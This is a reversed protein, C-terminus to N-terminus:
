PDVYSALTVLTGQGIAYGIILGEFSQTSSSLASGVLGGVLVGAVSTMAMAPVNPREGILRAGLYAGAVSGIASGLAAAPAREMGECILVGGVCDLDVIAFRAGLMLGVGSGVGAGVLRATISSASASAAPEHVAADEFRTTLDAEQGPCEGAGSFMLIITILAIRALRGSASM